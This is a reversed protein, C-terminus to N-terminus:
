NAEDRAKLEAATLNPGPWLSLRLPGNRRPQLAWWFKGCACRVVDYRKVTLQQKHGCGCRLAVPHLVPQTANM